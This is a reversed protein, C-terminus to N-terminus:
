CRYINNNECRFTLEEFSFPFKVDEQKYGFSMPLSCLARLRHPSAMPQALVEIHRESRREAGAM